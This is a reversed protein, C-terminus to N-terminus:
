VNNKNIETEEIDEVTEASTKEQLYRIHEDIYEPPYAKANFYQRRNPYVDGAWNNGAMMASQTIRRRNDM